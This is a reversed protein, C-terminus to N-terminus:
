SLLWRVATIAVLGQALRKSTAQIVLEPRGDFTLHTMKDWPLHLRAEFLSPSLRRFAYYPQFSTTSVDEDDERQKRRRRRHLAQCYQIVLTQASIVDITHGHSTVTERMGAGGSGGCLTRAVERTIATFEQVVSSMKLEDRHFKAFTERLEGYEETDADPWIHILQAQAARARGRRQIQSKVTKPPDFHVVFRCKGIDIGEEAVESAFLVRIIGKKFRDLISKQTEISM